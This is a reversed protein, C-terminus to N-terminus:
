TPMPMPDDDWGNGFNGPHHSQWTTRLWTQGFSERYKHVSSWPWDYPSAVYGHKVPNYHIHNLAKYFHRDDRILRDSYQYWVRRKGTLGDQINWERSTSGHIRKITNSIQTFHEVGSLVHYHNSLITWGFLDGQFNEIETLLRLEFETRREITDMIPLHEYNAASILYYGARRYPHPPGHLPYGRELRQRKITDQEQPSLTRYEYAM